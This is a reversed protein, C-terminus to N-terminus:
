ARRFRGACLLLRRSFGFGARARQDADHLGGFYGMTGPWNGITIIEWAPTIIELEVGLRKAIERAVDVDFGDMENADNLFSQPPYSPDSSLVLVGKSM